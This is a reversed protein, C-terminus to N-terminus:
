FKLGLGITSSFDEDGGRDGSITIPVYRADMRLSFQSSFLYNVGGTVLWGVGDQELEPLATEVRAAGLPAPPPAAPYTVPAAFPVVSSVRAYHFGSGAFPKWRSSSPFHYLAAADVITAEEFDGERRSVSVESSIKSSWFYGIGLQAAGDYGFGDIDSYFFAPEFGAFLEFKREQAQQPPQQPAAQPEQAPLGAAILVAALGALAM